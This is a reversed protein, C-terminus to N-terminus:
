SGFTGSASFTVGDTDTTSVSYADLAFDHQARRGISSSVSDTLRRSSSNGPSSPSRTSWAPPFPFWRCTSAPRTPASSRDLCGFGRGRCMRGLGPAHMDGPLEANVKWGGGFWRFQEHARAVATDRDPDYSVPIQGVSSKGAGGHRAFSELLGGDPEVAIVLDALRGALECSQEGSVAIGIPTPQEPM